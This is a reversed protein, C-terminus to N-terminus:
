RVFECKKRCRTFIPVVKLKYRTGCPDINAGIKNLRKMFSKTNKMLFFSTQLKAPSIVM